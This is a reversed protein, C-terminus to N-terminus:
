KNQKLKELMERLKKNEEELSNIKEDKQKIVNKTVFDVFTESKYGCNKCGWFEPRKWEEETSGGYKRWCEDPDPPDYYWHDKRDSIVHAGHQSTWYQYLGQRDRAWGHMIWKDDKKQWKDFLYFTGVENRGCIPCLFTGEEEAM